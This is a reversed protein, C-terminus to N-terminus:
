IVCIYEPLIRVDEKKDTILQTWRKSPPLDLDVTYWPVGGKFRIWFNFIVNSCFCVCFDSFDVTMIYIEKGLVIVPSYEDKVM